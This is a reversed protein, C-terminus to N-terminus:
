VPRPPTRHSPDWCRRRSRVLSRRRRTLLVHGPIGCTSVGCGRSRSVVRAPRLRWGCGGSRRTRIRCAPSEEASFSCPPVTPPRAPPHAGPARRTGRAGRRVGVPNPPKGRWIGSGARRREGLSTSEPWSTNSASVLIWPGFPRSDDESPLRGGLFSKPSFRSRRVSSRGSGRGIRVHSWGGVGGVSGRPIEGGATSGSPCSLVAGRLVFQAALVCFLQEGVAHVHHGFPGVHGRFRISDLLEDILPDQVSEALGGVGATDGGASQFHRLIRHEATPGQRHCTPGLRRTSPPAM